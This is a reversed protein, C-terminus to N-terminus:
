QYNCFRTMVLISIEADNFAFASALVIKIKNNVKKIQEPFDIDQQSTRDVLILTFQDPSNSIKELASLADYCIITKFGGFQLGASFVEAIDADDNVILITGDSM